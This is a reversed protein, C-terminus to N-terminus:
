ENESFLYFVFFVLGAVILAPIFWASVFAFIGVRQGFENQLIGMSNLFILATVAMMIYVIGKRSGPELEDAKGVALGKIVLYTFMIILITLSIQPMTRLVITVPDFWGNLIPFVGGTNIFRGTVPDVDFLFSPVTVMFSILASVVKNTKNAIAKKKKDTPNAGFTFVGSAEGVVYLVIFFLVFPILFNLLGFDQVATCLYQRFGEQYAYCEFVAM